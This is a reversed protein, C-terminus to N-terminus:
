GLSKYLLEWIEDYDKERAAAAYQHVAREIIETETKDLYQERLLRLDHMMVPTWRYNKRVRKFARM